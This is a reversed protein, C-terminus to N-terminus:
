RKGFDIEKGMVVIKMGCYETREVVEWGLKAYLGEAAHTWLYLRAIKLRAAEKVAREMLRTAVGRGRWEPAVFFAGFWPTL